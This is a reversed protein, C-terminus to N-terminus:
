PGVTDAAQVRASASDAVRMAKGVGTAGPISSQALISDRERKTLTDGPSQAASGAAGDDASGCALTFVAVSVIIPRFM